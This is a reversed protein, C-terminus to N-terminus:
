VTKINSSNSFAWGSTKFTKMDMRSSPRQVAWRASLAPSRSSSKRRHTNTKVVLASREAPGRRRPKEPPSARSRSRCSLPFAAEGVSNAFRSKSSVSDARLAMIRWPTRVSIAPLNPPIMSNWGRSSAALSAMVTLCIWDRPRSYPRSIAWISLSVTWARVGPCSASDAREATLTSSPM